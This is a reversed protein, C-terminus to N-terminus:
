ELESYVVLEGQDNFLNKFDPNYLERWFGQMDIYYQEYGTRGSPYDIPNAAAVRLEFDDLFNYKYYDIAM